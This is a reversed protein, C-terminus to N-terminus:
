PTFTYGADGIKTGNVAEDFWGRLTYGTRTATPLEVKGLEWKAYLNVTGYTEALNIVSQRDSFQKYGNRVLSWGLFTGIMTDKDKPCSSGDGNSNYTVEYDRVYGNPTLSKYVDYVHGSSETAGGTNNNGDYAVTYTIPMWIAYYITDNTFHYPEDWEIPHGGAPSDYWGIFSYGTKLPHPDPM